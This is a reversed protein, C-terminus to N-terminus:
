LKVGHYLRAKFRAERKDFGMRRYRREIAVLESESNTRRPARAIRATRPESGRYKDPNFHRDFQESVNM